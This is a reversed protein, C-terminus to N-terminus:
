SRGYVPVAAGHIDRAADSALFLIVQAMSETTVWRSPDAKPMAERNEPTDITSPLICNVNIGKMRLEAAMSETMRIVAAKSASYASADAGGALGARASVNVIKGSGQNLMHPIVARCTHFVTAANLNMMLTWTDPTTEHMPTGARYGGVTNVLIDIQGLTEVCRAVAQATSDADMLDVPSLLLHADGLDAYMQQQRVADRDVIAVAAGTAVFARAVAAGLNGTGGTVMAVKGSFDFM